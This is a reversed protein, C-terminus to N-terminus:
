RQDQKWLDVARELAAVVKKRKPEELLYMPLREYWRQAEGSDGGYDTFRESPIISSPRIKQRYYVLCAELQDLSQFDFTFSCVRVHWLQRTALSPPLTPPLPFGPMHTTSRLDPTPWGKQGPKLMEKWIAAM